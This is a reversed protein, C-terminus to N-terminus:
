TKSMYLVSKKCATERIRPSDSDLSSATGLEMPEPGGSGLAGADGSNRMPVPSRNFNGWKQKLLRLKTRADHSAVRTIIADAREAFMTGGRSFRNPRALEVQLRIDQVLARVFRDLKEAESLDPVKLCTARFRFGFDAVGGWAYQRMMTALDDRGRAGM